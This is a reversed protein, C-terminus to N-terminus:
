STPADLVDQMTYLGAPQQSAFRAARLAGRVFVERSTAKHTLEIREQQGFFIVSHEGAVDGGRMVTFGIDGRRRRDTIGDRQGARVDELKVGRGKAAARGLELATGSPADIKQNHHTEVIEIDWGDGLQRATEEVARSLLNVGVCTNACYIIPIDQAAEQLYAEDAASLGTTGVVIPVGAARAAEVHRLTADPRTFDIIVDSKTTLDALDASVNIPKDPHIGDPIPLGLSGYAPHEAAAVLIMEMETETLSHSLLDAIALGMKGYAGTIGIKLFEDNAM